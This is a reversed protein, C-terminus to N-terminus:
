EAADKRSRAMDALRTLMDEVSACAIAGLEGLEGSVDVPLSTNSGKPVQNLKGGIFVPVDLGRAALAARLAKLYDLAVGNYTSVAVFGAGTDEALAALASADVSVGADALEVDLKGLVSDLLVKGYEHVDTTAVAGKLGAGRLARRVGDDLSAVCAEAQAELEVFTTAAVVPVRGRPEAPDERGPGFAAELRRAGARRIALLMEFPDETDIGAEAFGKLVAACFRKGGAVLCAAMADVRADDVWGGQGETREILRNAFMQAAIIEDVDPIRQAETVPVPNVAHGTPRTRQGQIDVSLYAALSAYNAAEDPGYTVTNGYVMTGPTTSVEALARQFALRSVPETFTHGYCHAVRGGSLAEVIHIELLVAGLTCALDSFLAAFGDDLNSHILVDVPQAAALAMAKVTAATTAVDDDWGPLRYTFYQGLNGISTSGAELAMRTNEFAAPMGMIFDGFHPAVPAEATLSAFEGAGTMMLGTGMMDDRRAGAPYGMAWDLCIGYRDVRYGHKSLAEPIESFARRTKAFDRFGIQAHTMVEGAAICRTKWEFESAVGRDRLFACTGVTVTEAAKRGEALLDAGAPLDPEPLIAARDFTM